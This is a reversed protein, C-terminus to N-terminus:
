IAAVQAGTELLLGTLAGFGPGIELIRDDPMIKADRVISEVFNADILFNQGLKKSPAVGLSEMLAALQKKNMAAEIIIDAADAAADAATPPM